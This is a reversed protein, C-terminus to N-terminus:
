TRASRTTSRPATPRSTSSSSSSRRRREQERGEQAHDDLGRRAREPGPRLVAALRLPGHAPDLARRPEGDDAAHAPEHVDEPLGELGERVAVHRRSGDGAQRPPRRPQGHEARRLAERRGERERVRRPQVDDHPPRGADATGEPPQDADEDRLRRLHPDRRAHDLRGRARPLRGGHLRGQAARLARGDARERGDRLGRLHPDRPRAVSHVGAAFAVGGGLLGVAAAVFAKKAVVALTEGRWSLFPVLAVLLAMLAAIPAHTVNYFSTSVQSAKGGIRTLIPASTGLLIM